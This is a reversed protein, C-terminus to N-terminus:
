LSSTCQLIMGLLYAGLGLDAEATFHFVLHKAAIFSFLEEGV